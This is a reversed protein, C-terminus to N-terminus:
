DANADAMNAESLTAGLSAAAADFVSRYTPYKRCWAQYDIRPESGIVNLTGAKDDFDVRLKMMRGFVYDANATGPRDDGRVMGPVAPYDGRTCVNQWVQDETAATAAQLFGLGTTGRCAEYALFMGRKAVDTATAKGDIKLTLM